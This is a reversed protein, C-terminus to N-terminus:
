NVEYGQEEITAQIVPLTVLAPDYQVEVTKGMLDVSVSVVGNVAGLAKKVRNVCHGCTM